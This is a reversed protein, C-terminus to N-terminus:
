YGLMMQFGFGTGMFRFDVKEAIPPYWGKKNAAPMYKTANNKEIKM